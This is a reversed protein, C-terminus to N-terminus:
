LRTLKVEVQNRTMMAWHYIYNFFYFEALTSFKSHMLAETDFQSITARHTNHM